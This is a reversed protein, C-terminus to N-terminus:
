LPCGDVAASRIGDALWYISLSLTLLALVAFELGDFPLLAAAGGIGFVSLVAALVVTGCAACGAGLTGFVIGLLSGSGRQLTVREQRFHYVLMSLNVGFLIGSVVLLAGTLPDFMPGVFPYQELLIAFRDTAPLHTAELLAFRFLDLNLSAVFTTLGVLSGLLILLAYLPSSLLTRLTKAVFRSDTRPSPLLSRTSM